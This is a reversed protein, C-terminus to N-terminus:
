RGTVGTRSSGVGEEKPRQPYSCEQAYIRERVSVFVNKETVRINHKSYDNTREREREMGGGERARERKEWREGEGEM